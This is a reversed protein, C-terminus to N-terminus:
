KKGKKKDSKDKFGVIARDKFNLNVYAVNLKKTQIDEYIQRLRKFTNDRIEFGMTIKLGSRLLFISFGEIPDYHIESIDEKLSKIITGNEGIRNFIEIAKKLKVLDNRSIGTFVVFDLPEGASHKKFVVGNENFLFLEQDVLIGYAKEEQVFIKLTDPLSRQVTLANVWPHQKLKKGLAPLDISFISSNYLSKPVLQEKKSYHNGYLEVNKVVFISPYIEIAFYILCSIFFLIKLKNGMM